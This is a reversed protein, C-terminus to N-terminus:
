YELQTHLSTSRSLTKISPSKSNEKILLSLFLLENFDGMMMWLKQITGTLSTLHKSLMSRSSPTPSVYVSGFM